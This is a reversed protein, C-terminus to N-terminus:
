RPTSAREAEKHVHRWEFALFVQTVGRMLAASGSGSCSCRRLGLSRSCPGSPSQSRRSGRRAVAAVVAGVPEGVLRRDRLDRLSDSVLAFLRALVVFTAGPWGFATVGGALFVIGLLAHAAKWTPAVATMTFETGAVLCLVVGTLIAISGVSTLNFQLIAPSLLM